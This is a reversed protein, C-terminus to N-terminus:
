KKLFYEFNDLETEVARIADNGADLVEKRLAAAKADTYCDALQVYKKYQEPLVAKLNSLAEDHEEKQRQLIALFRKFLNTSNRKIAFRLIDGENSYM